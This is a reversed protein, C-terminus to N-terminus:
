RRGQQARAALLRKIRELVLKHDYPRKLTPGVECLEAANRVARFMVASSASMNETTVSEASHSRSRQGSSFFAPRRGTVKLEQSSPSANVWDSSHTCDVGVITSPERRSPWAAEAFVGCSRGLFGVLTEDHLDDRDGWAAGNALRVASSQPLGPSYRGTDKAPWRQKLSGSCRGAVPLTRLSSLM